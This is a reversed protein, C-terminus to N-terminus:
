QKALEAWVGAHDATLRDLSPATDDKQPRVHYYNGDQGLWYPEPGDPCMVLAREAPCQQGGAWTFEMGDAPGGIIKPM